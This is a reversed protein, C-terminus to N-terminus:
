ADKFTSVPRCSFNINDSLTGPPVNGIHAVLFLIFEPEFGTAPDQSGGQGTSTNPNLYHFEKGLNHKTTILKLGYSSPDTTQNGTSEIFSPMVTFTSDQIVQYRRSNVKAMHFDQVTMVPNSSTSVSAPGFPENLSNLFVDENPNIVQYSAKLARPKVRMMRVRYPAAKLSDSSTFSRPRQILWKIENYAPRCSLGELSFQARSPSSNDSRFVANMKLSTM